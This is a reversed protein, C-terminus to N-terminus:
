WLLHRGAGLAYGARCSTSVSGIRRYVGNVKKQIIWRGGSRVVRGVVRTNNMPPYLRTRFVTGLWNSQPPVNGKGKVVDYLHGSGSDSSSLVGVLKGTRGKVRAGYLDSYAVTGRVRGHTDKVTFVKQAQVTAPFLLAVFLFLLVMQLWHRRM